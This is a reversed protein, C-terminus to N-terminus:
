NFHCNERKCLWRYVYLMQTLITTYLTDFQQQNNYWRTTCFIYISQTGNRFIFVSGSDCWELTVCSVADADQKFFIKLFFFIQSVNMFTMWHTIFHSCRIDVGACNCETCQIGQKQELCGTCSHFALSNSPVYNMWHWVLMSLFCCIVGSSGCYTILVFYVKMVFGWMPFSM